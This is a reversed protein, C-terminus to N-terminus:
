NPSSRENCLGAQKAPVDLKRYLVEIIIRALEDGNVSSKVLQFRVLDMKVEWENGIELRRVMLYLQSMREWSKKPLPNTCRKSSSLPLSHCTQSLSSPRVQNKGRFYELLNLPTGSKQFAQAIKVRYVSIASPLTERKTHTTKTLSTCAEVIDM